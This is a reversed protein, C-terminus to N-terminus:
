TPPLIRYTSDPTNGWSVLVDANADILGFNFGVITCAVVGEVKTLGHLPSVSVIRPPAVSVSAISVQLGLPPYLLV